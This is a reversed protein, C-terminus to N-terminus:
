LKFEPFVEWKGDQFHRLGDEETTWGNGGDLSDIPHENYSFPTEIRTFNRGDFRSLSRADGHTAWIAGTGDRSVADVFRDALGDDSDWFRWEAPNAAGLKAPIGTLVIWFFPVACLWQWYRVGHARTM